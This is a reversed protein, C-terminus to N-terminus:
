DTIFATTIVSTEGDLCSTIEVYYGKADNPLIATIRNNRLVAPATHWENIMQSHEDYAMAETLYYVTCQLEEKGSKRIMFDINKGSPQKEVTPLPTGAKVISDAFRYSEPQNWAVIHGHEIGNKVSLKARANATDLYSLSNPIIDFNLDRNWCLWLVPFSIKRIRKTAIRYDEDDLTCFVKKMVSLSKELYASGYVPIAFAYDPDYCMALSTIIGGWSVGTIGIRKPDIRCDKKLISHALITDAIAHIMWQEYLPLDGTKLGDNEPGSIYEGNEERKFGINHFTDPCESFVFGKHADDPYWGTTEMAIAAYGRKQWIKVWEAFAHGGGGHVLM